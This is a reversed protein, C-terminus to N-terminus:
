STIFNLSNASKLLFGGRSIRRLKLTFKHEYDCNETGKGGRGREKHTHPYHSYVIVPPQYSTAQASGETTRAIFRFSATLGTLAFAASSRDLLRRLIFCFVACSMATLNANINLNISHGTGWGRRRGRKCAMLEGNLAQVFIQAILLCFLCRRMTTTQKLLAIARQEPCPLKRASLRQGSLLLLLLFVAAFQVEADTEPQGQVPLAPALQPM